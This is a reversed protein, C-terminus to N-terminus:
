IQHEYVITKYDTMGAEILKAKKLINEFSKEENYISDEPENLKFQECTLYKDDVFLCFFCSGMLPVNREIRVKM